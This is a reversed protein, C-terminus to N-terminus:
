PTKGQASLKNGKQLNFMKDYRTAELPNFGYDIM